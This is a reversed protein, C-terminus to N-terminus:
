RRDDDCLSERIWYGGLIANPKASKGRRKESIDLIPCGKRFIQRLSKQARFEKHCM